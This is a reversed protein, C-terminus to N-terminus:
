PQKSPTGAATLRQRIDDVLQGIGRDAQLITWGELDSAAVAKQHTAVEADADSADNRRASIRTVRLEPPAELWFGALRAGTSAALSEFANREDPSALMADIIVSGGRRLLAAAESMLRAYVQASAEPTYSESPLRTEPAVGALMKRVVDSRLVRAGPPAGIHRALARAVSSKGSGSLGGVAVLVADAPQLMELALDLYGAAQAGAEASAGPAAARAAGVHARIAARVSMFLAMLPAGDRDDPSVDLYRNFVINAEGRRGSHWLDMLLFALDYLIDTTALDTDFELCDFLTPAGDILAVNALHLDGHCHRVRGNRARANLLSRAATAAAQAQRAWAAVKAPDLAGPYARMSVINGAIVDGLRRWGSLEGAIEADRHFAAIHDTLRILLADDLCGHEAVAALLKEQPFRGMELLWEVAEGPGDLTLKGGARTIKHLGRYLMPATRRNLRLEAALAAHRKAVTSFDLYPYCVARKMKWAHDGELFISAAHTDIRIPRFCGFADGSELFALVEQQDEGAAQIPSIAMHM